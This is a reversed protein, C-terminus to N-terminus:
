ASPNGISGMFLVTGTGRHQIIFLFPHDANFVISSQSCNDFMIVATAAAAETGEENVEIFAKHRVTKIFLPDIIDTGSFRCMGTFEAKNPDFARAMGLNKLPENLEYETELKFKPLHISISTEYMASKLTSLSEFTLSEVIESVSKQKPLLVLMSIEEGKYTLELMQFEETETYYFLEESGELCMTPVMIKEGSELEFELEKTEEPNFQVKWDAKFYIANTLILATYMIIDDSKILDTIKGKTQEKVWDNIMQATEEPKSVDIKTAHGKYYEEIIKSYNLLLDLNDRIWLANATSITFNENRNLYEYLMKVSELVTENNQPINLVAMMEEATQGRAGEYTMALAIFISYPSFFINKDGKKLLEKYLKFSLECIEKAISCNVLKLTSQAKVTKNNTLGNYNVGAYVGASIIVLTVIIALTKLKNM